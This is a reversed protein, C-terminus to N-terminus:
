LISVVIAMRSTAGASEAAAQCHAVAEEQTSFTTPDQGAIGVNWGFGDWAVGAPDFVGYWIACVYRGMQRDLLEVNGPFVPQHDANARVSAGSEDLIQQPVPDNVNVAVWTNDNMEWARTEGKADNLAEAQEATIVAGTEFQKVSLDATATETPTAVESSSASPAPAASDTGAACGTLSFTLAGALAAAVAASATYRMRRNRETTVQPLEDPLEGMGISLLSTDARSLTVESLSPTKGAFQGGVPTGAPQRVHTSPTPTTM